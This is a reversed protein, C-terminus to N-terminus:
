DHNKHEGINDLYKLRLALQNADVHLVADSPFGTRMVKEFKLAQQCSASVTARRSSGCITFGLM